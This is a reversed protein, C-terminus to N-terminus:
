NNGHNSEMESQIKSDEGRIIEACIQKYEEATTKSTIAFADKVDAKDLDYVKCLDALQKKQKALNVDEAYKQKDKEANIESNNVADIVDGDTIGFANLYLYRKLYTNVAGLYQIDQMMKSGNNTLPTDFWRFPISYVQSEDGKIITLTAFMHEEDNVFSIVDNIGEQLMLENLTPLFDSLEYYTFGAHQNKGSKKTKANQLEVRIKIISENLNMKDEM